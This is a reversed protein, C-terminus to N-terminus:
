HHESSPLYLLMMCFMGKIGNTGFEGAQTNLNGGRNSRLTEEDVEPISDMVEEWQESPRPLPFPRNPTGTYDSGAGSGEGDSGLAEKADINDSRTAISLPDDPPLRNERTTSTARYPGPEKRQGQAFPDQMAQRASRTQALTTSAFKSNANCGSCVSAPM